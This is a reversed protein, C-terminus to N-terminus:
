RTEKLAKIEEKLDINTRQLEQISKDQEIVYLTLEEIKQLLKAQMESLNIGKEALEQASPIDPLHRYEQIHNSVTELSPLCYDPAFVYDPWNTTELIVEHSRIIGNVELKYTPNTIGIGVNGDETIAMRVQDRTFFKLGGYAAMWLTPGMSTWSDSIWKLSYYGMTKGDYSFTHTPLSTLYNGFYGDSRTIGNVDLPYTPDTRGIGVNGSGTIAMRVQEQTFFKLGGYAAMWLTPGMNTWSDSIWKLSYYGMTKGDYSFTHAPLSTLYNGFYGDSRTIGTVDLPYQPYTTSGISVKDTFFGDGNVTLSSNADPLGVRLIGDVYADGSVYSSTPYLTNVSAYNIFFGSYGDAGCISADSKFRIMVRGNPVSPTTYLEWHTGSIHFDLSLPNGNEDVSYVSLCDYTLETDLSLFYIRLYQNPSETDIYWCTDMNNQYENQQLKIIGSTGYMWPINYAQVVGVMSLAMVLGIIKRKM